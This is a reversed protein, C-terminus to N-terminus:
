WGHREWQLRFSRGSEPRYRGACTSASAIMRCCYPLIFVIIFFFFGAAGDDEAASVFRNLIKQDMLNLAVPAEGFAMDFSIFGFVFCCLAFDFFFGIKGDREDVAEAEAEVIRKGFADGFIDDIEKGFICFAFFLGLFFFQLAHSPEGIILRQGRDGKIIVAAQQYTGIM